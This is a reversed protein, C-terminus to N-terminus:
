LAAANVEARQDDNFNDWMQDLLDGLLDYRPHDVVNGDEDTSTPLRFRDVSIRLYEDVFTPPHHVQDRQLRIARKRARKDEARRVAEEDTIWRDRHPNPEPLLRTHLSIPDAEPPFEGEGLVGLMPLLIPLLPHNKV